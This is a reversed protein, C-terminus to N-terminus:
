PAAELRNANEALWQEDAEKVSFGVWPIGDQEGKIYSDQLLNPYRSKAIEFARWFAFRIEEEAAFDTRMEVVHRFIRFNCSWGLHTGIGTPLIRRLASTIKKKDTFNGMQDVGFHEQLEKYAAEAQDTARVFIELAKEDERIALPVYMPLDVPRVYRMSVQSYSAIRHRVHEHSLVRSVDGFVWNMQPHEVVSLHKTDLINRLYSKNGERVKTVNPNMGPKYSLYCLRGYVESLAEPASPADTDWEPVGMFDLFAELGYEPDSVAATEGILFVKPEIERVGREKKKPSAKM